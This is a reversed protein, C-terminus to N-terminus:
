IKSKKFLSLIKQGLRWGFPPYSLFASIFVFQQIEIFNWKMINALDLVHHWWSVLSAYIEARGENWQWSMRTHLTYTQRLLFYDLLLFIFIMALAGIFFSILRKLHEKTIINNLKGRIV